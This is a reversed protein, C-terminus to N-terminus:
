ARKGNEKSQVGSAAETEADHEQQERQRADEIEVDQQRQERLSKSQGILEDTLLRRVLDVWEREGFAYKLAGTNVVKSIADTAYIEAISPMPPRAPPLTRAGPPQFDQLVLMAADVAEGFGDADQLWQPGMLARKQVLASQGAKRMVDGVMLLLGALGAGFSRELLEPFLAEREFSRELRLEAEQSLSRDNANAASQVRTALEATARIGLTKKQGHKAKKTPRGVKPKQKAAPM